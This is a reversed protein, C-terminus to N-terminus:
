ELVIGCSGTMHNVVDRTLAHSTEVALQTGEPTSFIVDLDYDADALAVVYRDIAAAFAAVDDSIAEPAQEEAQDLLAVVEGFDVRLDDPPTTTEAGRAIRVAVGGMASCFAQETDTATDASNRGNTGPHGCGALALALTVVAAFLRAQSSMPHM